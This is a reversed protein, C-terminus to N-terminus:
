FIDQDCLIEGLSAILWSFVIGTLAQPLNQGFPKLVYPHSRQGAQIIVLVPTQSSDQM